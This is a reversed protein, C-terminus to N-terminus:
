KREYGDRYFEKNNLEERLEEITKDKAKLEKRLERNIEIHMRLEDEHCLITKEKAMIEEQLKKIQEHCSLVGEKFGEEYLRFDHMIKNHEDFAEQVAKQLDTQKQAPKYYPSLPNDKCLLLVAEALQEPTKM